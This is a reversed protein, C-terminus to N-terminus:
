SLSVAFFGSILTITAIVMAGAGLYYAAEFTAELWQRITVERM